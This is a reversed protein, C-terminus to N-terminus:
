WTGKGPVYVSLWLIRKRKSPRPDVNYYIELTSRKGKERFLYRKYRVPQLFREDGYDSNPPQKEKREWSPFCNRLTSTINYYRSEVKGLTNDEYLNYTVSEGPVVISGVAGPLEIKSRFRTNSPSEIPEGVIESFGDQSASLLKSIQACVGNAIEDARPEPSASDFAFLINPNLRALEKLKSGVNDWEIEKFPIAWSIGALGEKLGGNAIAVIHLKSDLIPAGSDGPLLNGQLNLVNIVHNPSRREKLISLPASPILDKLPKLPPNRLTLMTELLSIGYPYGYVKLTGLSEWVINDAVDLGESDGHEFFPSSLLAADYDADIKVINLPEDLFLGKRNSARIQQCDAIGHLATVLGKIGRVRFGTQSREYPQHGCDFMKILYVHEEQAHASRALLLLAVLIITSKLLSAHIRM